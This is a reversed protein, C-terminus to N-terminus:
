VVQMAQEFARRDAFIEFVSEMDTLELLMKIQDNIQCLALRGGSARTQKLAMVLAGLGSSDMFEVAACDLLLVQHGSQLAAEVMRRLQSGKVGDLIGSMQIVQVNTSNM